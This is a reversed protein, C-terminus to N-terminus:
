ISQKSGNASGEGQLNQQQTTATSAQTNVGQSEQANKLNVTRKEHSNISVKQLSKVIHYLLAGTFVGVFNLMIDDINLIGTGLLYQTLEIGFSCLMGIGTAAIASPRGKGVCAFLGVPIFLLINTIIELYLFGYEEFGENISEFPYINHAHMDYVAFELWNEFQFYTTLYIFLFIPYAISIIRIFKLRAKIHKNM